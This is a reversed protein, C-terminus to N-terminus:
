GLKKALDEAKLHTYRKLMTLTKHGTITAVEMMDLGKEFFRSTAEHRLDHFRLDSLGGRNVADKFASKVSEPTIPFVRDNSSGRISEFIQVAKTSLPVDRRLNNKTDPLHAVQRELDIHEWRLGMIEGLRMGTEIATIIIPYLWKSRSKLCADFLLEEENGKLRRDRGQPLSPKRIGRVPNSLGELGWESAAITFIHSLLNLDNRIKSASFGESLNRDRWQALDAGKIEILLKDALPDRRWL